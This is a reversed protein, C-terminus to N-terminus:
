ERGLGLASYLADDRATQDFEVMQASAMNVNRLQRIFLRRLLSSSNGRNMMQNAYPLWDEMQFDGQVVLDSGRQQQRGSFFSIPDPVGAPTAQAANAQRPAQQPVASQQQQVRPGLASQMDRMQGVEGYQLDSGQLYPVSRDELDHRKANRGVGPAQAPRGHQNAPMRGGSNEGKAM